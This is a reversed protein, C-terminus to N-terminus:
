VNIVRSLKQVRNLLIDGDHLLKKYQYFKNDAQGMEVVDKVADIRCKLAGLSIFMFLEKDIFEKSVGFCKAMVGLGVTKYPSLFQEYARVRMARSYFQYHPRLYRDQKMYQELEALATFFQAYESRYFTTLLQKALPLHRNKDTPEANLQQQIESCNVVKEKLDPRDLAYVCCIVTYFTLDEYSMLEYADFTPVAELFLLAAGRMERIAMKYLAEYSRLRNKRDWDGGKEMLSKAKEINETIIQHDMFFFGLRIVNFVLDIRYGIGVTKDFTLQFAALAREKDGIKCLYEAKALHSQRVESEGLNEEADKIKRDFEDLKQENLAKLTQLKAKDIPVGLQPAAYEYFPAMENDTISKLLELFITAVDKKNEKCLFFKQALQLDPNMKRYESETSLESCEEQAAKKTGARGGRSAAKQKTSRGAAANKRTPKKKTETAAHRAHPSGSGAADAESGSDSREEEEQDTEKTTKRGRSKTQKNARGGAATKRTPKKKTETAASQESDERGSDVATGSDSWEAEEAQEAKKAPRGRRKTATKARRPAPSKKTSPKKVRLGPTRSSPGPAKKKLSQKKVWGM